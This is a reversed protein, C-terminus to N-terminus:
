EAFVGTPVEGHVVHRTVSGAQFWVVEGYHRESPHVPESKPIGSIGVLSAFLAAKGEMAPLSARPGINGLGLIASGDTAEAIVNLVSALGGPSHPTGVQLIGPIKV